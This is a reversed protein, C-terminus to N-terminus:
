WLFYDENFFIYYLINTFTQSLKDWYGGKGNYISNCLSFSATSLKNSAGYKFCFCFCILRVSNNIKITIQLSAKTTAQDEQFVMARLPKEEDCIGAWCSSLIIVVKRTIISTSFTQTCFFNFKCMKSSSIKCFRQELDYRFIQYYNYITNSCLKLHLKSCFM